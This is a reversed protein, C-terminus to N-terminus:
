NQRAYKEKGIRMAKKAMKDVKKLKNREVWMINVDLHRLLKKIRDLLDNNIYCSNIGYICKYSWESDTELLVKENPRILMISMKLGAIIATLEMRNNTTNEGCGTAYYILNNERYIEVAWGGIKSSVEASGDVQVLIM